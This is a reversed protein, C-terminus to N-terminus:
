VLKFTNQADMEDTLIIRLQFLSVVAYFRWDYARLNYDM